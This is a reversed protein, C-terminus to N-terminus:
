PMVAESSLMVVWYRSGRASSQSRERLQQETLTQVRLGRIKDEIVWYQSTPDAPSSYLRPRYKQESPELYDWTHETELM